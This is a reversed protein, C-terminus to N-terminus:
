CVIVVCLSVLCSKVLAALERKLKRLEEKAEAASQQLIPVVVVCHIEKSCADCFRCYIYVYFNLAISVWLLTRTSSAVWQQTTGSIDFRNKMESM